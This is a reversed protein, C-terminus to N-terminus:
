NLRRNNKIIEIISQKPCLLCNSHLPWTCVLVDNVNYFINFDKPFCVPASPFFLPSSFFWRRLDFWWAVSSLSRHYDIISSQMTDTNSELTMTRSNEDRPEVSKQRSRVKHFSNFLIMCWTHLETWEFGIHQSTRNLIGLKAPRSTRRVTFHFPTGLLATTFHLSLNHSFWFLLLSFNIKRRSPLGSFHWFLKSCYECCSFSILCLM